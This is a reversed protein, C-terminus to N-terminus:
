NSQTEQPHWWIFCRVLNICNQAYDLDNPPSVMSMFHKYYYNQWSELNGTGGTRKYSLNWLISTCVKKKLRQIRRYSSDQVLETYLNSIPSSKYLSEYFIGQGKRRKDREEYSQSRIVWKSICKLTQKCWAWKSKHSQERVWGQCFMLIYRFAM